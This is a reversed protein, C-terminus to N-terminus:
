FCCAGIQLAQSAALLHLLARQLTSQRGRHLQESADQALQKLCQVPGHGDLMRQGLDWLSFPQKCSTASPCARDILAQCPQPFLAWSLLCGAPTNALAWQAADGQCTHVGLLCCLFDDVATQEAASGQVAAMCRLELCLQVLQEATSSSIDAVHGSDTDARQSSWEALGRVAAQRREAARLHHSLDLSARKQPEGSSIINGRADVVSSSPGAQQHSLRRAEDASQLALMARGALIEAWAQGSGESDHAASCTDLLRQAQGLDEEAAELGDDIDPSGSRATRCLRTHARYALARAHGVPDTAMPHVKLLLAQLGRKIDVEWDHRDGATSDTHLQLLASIEERIVAGLMDKPVRLGQAGSAAIWASFGAQSQKQGRQAKINDAASRQQFALDSLSAVASCSGGPQSRASSGKSALLAVRISCFAQVLLQVASCATIDLRGLLNLSGVLYQLAQIAKGDSAMSQALMTAREGVITLSDECGQLCQNCTM